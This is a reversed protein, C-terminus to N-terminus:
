NQIGVIAVDSSGSPLISQTLTEIKKSTSAETDHRDDIDDLVIMDPRHENIKIGRVRVDLGIGEVILGSSTRLSNRRWGKSSGFKSMKRQALLPYYDGLRSDTLMDAINSVSEDAKDQTSRVILVFQRKKFAGCLCVSLEASTSKGGGRPWIAVFPTSRKDNELKWIWDWFERHRDGFDVSVYSPFIEKLWSACDTEIERTDKSKDPNIGAAFAILASDLLSRGKTIGFM